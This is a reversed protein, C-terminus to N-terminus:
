EGWEVKPFLIEGSLIENGVLSTAWSLNEWTDTITAGLRHLIEVCIKPMIPRLLEAVIHVGKAVFSLTTNLLKVSSNDGQKALQWPARMEIYRNLRGVFDFIQELGMHFAFKGYEMRVSQILRQASEQIDQDLSEETAPAPIKGSCYRGVMNTLRSILNGLDNALDGNYRSVFLDHSFNGDQGAIMERLLFFRFADAGYLDVYDLPQVSNGLSKSMKEGGKALWWGHAFLHKPQPIELAHLMIPWYVSHAPVLIDKGVIHYDAPWYDEFRNEGYGAASIYNVLADFWVYTVYESDFPLEIGWSLRSKPRSICLDNIPEKLFELVQKQRFAPVVFDQNKNLFDVLWGQYHSLRFFYNTEKLEIPEGIDDPWRGDIKDKEQVFREARTSYLGAYEARYIEGGDHLKQLVERVVVKHREETTRIYDDYNVALRACLNKFDDAVRNCLAQPLTSQKQATEAVKQGHEDLGTLFYCEIGELRKFRIITDALIKEYAHGIHPSGNAYDIATTLYFKKVSQLNTVYIAPQLSFSRKGLQPLRSRILHIAPSKLAWVALLPFYPFIDSFQSKCHLLKTWNSIPM